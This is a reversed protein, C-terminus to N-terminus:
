GVVNRAGQLHSTEIMRLRAIVRPKPHPNALVDLIWFSRGVFDALKCRLGQFIQALCQTSSREPYRKIKINDWRSRCRMPLSAEPTERRLEPQANGHKAALLRRYVIKNIEHCVLAEM